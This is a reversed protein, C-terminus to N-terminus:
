IRQKLLEPAFADPHRLAELVPWDLSRVAHAIKGHDIGIAVLKNECFLTRVIVSGCRAATLVGTSRRAQGKAKLQPISASSEARVSPPRSLKPTLGSSATASKFPVWQAHRKARLQRM